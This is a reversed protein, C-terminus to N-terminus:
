GVGEQLAQDTEHLLQAMGGLTPAVLLERLSPVRGFQEQLRTHLDVAMLSDGGLSFFDDSSQLSKIGLLERWIFSLDSQIAALPRGTRAQDPAARELAHEMRHLARTSIIWRAGTSSLARRFVEVGEAPSIAISDNSGDNTAMGVERWRDWDIALFRTNTRGDHAQCFADQFANAACYDYWRAPTLVTAISSCCAFFDLQQSRCAEHLAWTGM